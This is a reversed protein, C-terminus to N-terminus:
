VNIVYYTCPVGQNYSKGKLLASANGAGYIGTEILLDELGSSDFLKGIVVLFNLATHFGGLRIVTDSFEDPLRWKIEKAKM